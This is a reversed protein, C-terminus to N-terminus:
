RSRNKRCFISSFYIRAQPFKSRTLISLKHFDKKLTELNADVIDNTGLHILVKKPQKKITATNLFDTTQPITYCTFRKRKVDKGMTSMDINTTNSDGIIVVDHELTQNTTPQKQQQDNKKVDPKSAIQLELQRIRESLVDSNTKLLNKVNEEVKEISDKFAISSKDIEQNHIYDAITNLDNDNLDYNITRELEANKVDNISTRLDSVAKENIEIKKILDITLTDLLGGKELKKMKKIVPKVQSTTYTKEAQLDQKLSKIDEENILVQANIESLQKEVNDQITSLQTSMSKIEKELSPIIATVTTISKMNETIDGIMEFLTSIDKPNIVPMQQSQNDTSQQPQPPPEEEAPKPETKSAEESLTHDNHAKEQPLDEHCSHYEDTHSIEASTTVTTDGSVDPVDALEIGADTTPCTNISLKSSISVQSDVLFQETEEEQKWPPKEAWAPSNSNSVEVTSFSPSVPTGALVQSIRKMPSKNAM